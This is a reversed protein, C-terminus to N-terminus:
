DISIVIAHAMSGSKPIIPSLAYSTGPYQFCISGTFSDIVIGCTDLFLLESSLM